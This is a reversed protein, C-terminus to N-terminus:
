AMSSVIAMMSSSKRGDDNVLEHGGVSRACVVGISRTLAKIEQTKEASNVAILIGLKQMSCSLFDPVLDMSKSEEIALQLSAAAFSSANYNVFSSYSVLVELISTARQFVPLWAEKSANYNMALDFFCELFQSPTVPHLRWQLKQLISMEMDFIDEKKFTCDALSLFMHQFKSAAKNGHLIKLSLYLTTLSLLQLKRESVSEFEYSNSVYKDLYFIAFFLCEGDLKLSTVVKQMWEFLQYRANSYESTWDDQCCEIKAEYIGSPLEELFRCTNKAQWIKNQGRSLVVKKNNKYNFERKQLAILRDM